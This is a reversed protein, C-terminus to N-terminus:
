TLPEIGSHLRLDEHIEEQESSEAEDKKKYKALM